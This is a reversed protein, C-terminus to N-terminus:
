YSFQFGSSTLHIHHHTQQAFLLALKQPKLCSPHVLLILGGLSRYSQGSLTFGSCTPMGQLKIKALSTLTEQNSSWNKAGDATALAAWNYALSKQKEKDPKALKSGPWGSGAWAMCVM